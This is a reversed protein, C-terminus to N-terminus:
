LDQSPGYDKKKRKMEGMLRRRQSSWLRLWPERVVV